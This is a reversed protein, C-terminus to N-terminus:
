GGIKNSKKINCGKCLLQLNRYTNAGGKSFPIIHDFELQENGGCEVCRGGDRNWVQDMVEQPIRERVVDQNDLFIVGKEKLDEYVERELQRRRDKEKISEHKAVLERRIAEKEEEIQRQKIEEEINSRRAELETLNDRYFKAIQTRFDNLLKRLGDIDHSNFNVRRAKSGAWPGVVGLMELDDMIRGARNYGLKMRRQLLSTSALQNQIILIAAEEVLSDLEERVYDEVPSNVLYREVLKEKIQDGLVFAPKAQFPTSNDIKNRTQKKFINWM